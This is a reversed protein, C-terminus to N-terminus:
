NAPVPGQAQHPHEAGSYIKLKKLMARGLKNKPLMGWVALRVVTEPSKAMLSEFSEEKLHGVYGSHRYYKKEAAKKGTVRVRGANIVVVFDGVDNHPSWIPKDKGMLLTAVKTAMRGLTKGGADVVYWKRDVTSDNVTQTRVAM